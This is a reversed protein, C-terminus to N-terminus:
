FEVDQDIDANKGLLLHDLSIHDLNVCYPPAKFNGVAERRKDRRTNSRECDCVTKTVM